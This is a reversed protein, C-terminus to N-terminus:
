PSILTAFPPLRTVEEPECLGAPGGLGPPLRDGIRDGDCRGSCVVGLDDEDCSNEVRVFADSSSKNDDDASLSRFRTM